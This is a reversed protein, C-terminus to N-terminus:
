IVSRQYIDSTSVPFKFGLEVAQHVTIERFGAEVDYEIELVRKFYGPRVSLTQDLCHLTVHMNGSEHLWYSAQLGNQWTIAQKIM